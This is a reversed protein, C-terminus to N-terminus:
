AVARVVVPTVTAEREYLLDEPAVDLNTERVLYRVPHAERVLRMVYRGLLAMGALCLTQAALIAPIAADVGAAVLVTMLGALAAFVSLLVFPRLSFGFFLDLAHTILRGLRFRTRGDRRPAHETEVTTYRAGVMPVSGLFYPTGLRLDSIKKAVSARVVRFTSAGAPIEIGLLRRAVWHQVRSAVRRAWPDKRDRRIGFVVDYGGEVARALLRHLERPPSQLDADLQVIWPKGAYRFGAGFAAELGYNRTFSIYRVRADTAALSRIVELTGDASGDDVFLIEADYRELEAALEEYARAIGDGENFCPVVATLGLRPARVPSPGRVAGYATRSRSDM